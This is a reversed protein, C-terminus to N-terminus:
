LVLLLDRDQGTLSSPHVIETTNRPRPTVLYNEGVTSGPLGVTIPLNRSGISVM